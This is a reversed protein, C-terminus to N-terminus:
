RKVYKSMNYLVTAVQARTAGAKPMLKNGSGQILKAGVAWKMASLAYSSVQSKDTYGSLTNTATVNAGTYVAFRYMLVALQERTIIQNPSFKTASTGAVLGKEKAWAVSQGYWEKMKVDSFGCETYENLGAGYLRALVLVFMARTMNTDPSFQSPSTGAFLGREAVFCINAKGWHKKIDTFKGCVHTSTDRCIVVLTKPIKNAVSTYSNGPTQALGDAYIAIVKKGSSPTITYTASGNAYSGCVAKGGVATIHTNVYTVDRAASFRTSGDKTIDYNEKATQLEANVKGAFQNGTALPISYYTVERSIQMSDAYENVHYDMRGNATAAIKIDYVGTLPLAIYKQSGTVSAAVGYKCVVVENNVISVVLEGKSSYVNVDTPCAVTVGKCVFNGDGTTKINGHCQLTQLSLKENTLTEVLPGTSKKTLKNWVVQIYSRNQLELAKIMVDISYMEVMKTLSFAEHFQKASEYDQKSLLNSLTKDLVRKMSAEFYYNARLLERCDVVDGTKAIWKALSWGNNYAWVIVGAQGVAKNGLKAVMWDETVDSMKDAFFEYTPKAAKKAFEVAVQATIAGTSLGNYKTYGEVAKKLQQAYYTNSPLVDSATLMTLMKKFDETTQLYTNLTLVYNICDITYDLVAQSTDIADFAVGLGKFLNKAGASKFVETFGTQLGTKSPKKGKCLDLVATQDLAGWESKWNNKVFSYLKGALETTKGAANQKFLNELMTYSGQNNIYDALIVEYQNDFMSLAKASLLESTFQMGDFIAQALNSAANDKDYLYQAWRQRNNFSLYAHGGTGTAFNLHEKVYAASGDDPMPTPPPSPTPTYQGLNWGAVDCQGYDNYGVAVVTGDKKLGVTHYGGAAAMPQTVFATEATTTLVPAPLMGCLLALVMGVSILKRGARKKM